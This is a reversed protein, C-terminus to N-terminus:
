KSFQKLKRKQLTFKVKDNSIIAKDDVLKILNVIDSCGLIKGYASRQMM